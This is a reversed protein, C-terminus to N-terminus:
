SFKTPLHAPSVLQHGSSKPLGPLDLSGFDARGPGSPEALRSLSGPLGLSGFDARGPGSPGAWFCCIYRTDRM